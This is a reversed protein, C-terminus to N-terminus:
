FWFSINYEMSGNFYYKGKIKHMRKVGSATSKELTRFGNRKKGNHEERQVWRDLERM